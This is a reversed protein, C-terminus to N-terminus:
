SVFVVVRSNKQEVKLIEKLTLSSLDISLRVRM